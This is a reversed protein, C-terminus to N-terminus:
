ARDRPRYSARVIAQAEALTVKPFPATPVRVQVGLRQEIEPGHAEAVRTLAHVLWAEELAMLDHHDATWAIEM